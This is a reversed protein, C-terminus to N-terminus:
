CYRTNNITSVEGPAGGTVNAYFGFGAGGSTATIVFGGYSLSASSDRWIFDGEAISNTTSVATKTLYLTTTSPSCLGSFAVSELYNPLIHPAIQVNIAEEDYLGGADTVRITIRYITGIKNTAFYATNKLEGNSSGITFLNSSTVNTNAGSPNEFVSIISYTLGLEDQAPDHSGNVASATTIINATSYHTSTGSSALTLIPNVNDLVIPLVQETYNNSGDTARINVNFTEGSTGYYFTSSTVRLNNSNIDFKSAINTNLDSQAYVNLITFTIGSLTSGGADKATLAGIVHPVTADEDFSDTAGGDIEISAPGGSATQIELNLAAVLGSTSTEYYIDLASDVPETEWVGMPINGGGLLLDIYGYGEQLEAALHNNSSQFLKNIPEGPKNTGTGGDLLESVLSQEKYTGISIVDLLPGDSMGNTASTSIIKPYLRTNSASVGEEPTNTTTDRPIKNINDGHLTLWTRKDEDTYFFAGIGDLVEVTSDPYSDMAGPAYVTYYEQETQKVVVKWSYWGLSNNTVDYANPIVDNFTIRLADGSWNQTDFQNDKAEVRVASKNQDSPLIVSSQRGHIDSLVLGVQYTRRQKITHYPYQIHYKQTTNIKQGVSAEFDISPLNNNQEFNGYILRNGTIEQAKAKLPINDYVRTIEDEPLTKYPLTSKYIYTYTSNTWSSIDKQAVSKLAPSDAEKYLIEIKQIEYDNYVNSSPLSIKLNVQAVDNVMSELETSKYAGKIQATTLGADSYEAGYAANYTKPIFCHQTFPSILSYEGDKFKFRYAFRVFEEEIYDKESNFTLTVSSLNAAISLTLDVGDIESVITGNAIGTGSVSQGKFINNNAATLTVATSSGSTSGVATTKRKQMGTQTGDSNLVEPVSYPYYKAVAIKIENNYFSNNDIAKQVNIKRPQNNDDTFFLLDDILNVGTILHSISFKLFSGQVIAKPASTTFDYLHEENEIQALTYNDRNISVPLTSTDYYYISDYADTNGKVFYFIRNSGNKSESEAYYGIVTGQNTVTGVTSNGKINQIVGVDSGESKTIHVNQAEKYEGNPLLRSDLDKNMKGKLFTHKIEPM